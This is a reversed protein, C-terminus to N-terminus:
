ATGVIFCGTQIMFVGIFHDLNPAQGIPRQRTEIVGFLM